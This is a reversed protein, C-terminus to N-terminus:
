ANGTLKVPGVNSAMQLLTATYKMPTKTTYSSSEMAHQLWASM